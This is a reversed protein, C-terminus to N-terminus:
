FSRQSSGRRLRENGRKQKRTVQLHAYFGVFLEVITMFVNIYFVYNAFSLIFANAKTPDTATFGITIGWTIISVIFGIITEEKGYVAGFKMSNYVKALLILVSVVFALIALYSLAEM